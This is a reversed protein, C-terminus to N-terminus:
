SVAKEKQEKNHKLGIKSNLLLWYFFGGLIYCGIDIWDPTSNKRLFPAVFEWVLGACFCYLVIHCLEQLLLKRIYLFINSYAVFLSGCLFDNFHCVLLYRVIGETHQKLYYNNLCYLFAVVVIVWGNLPIAKLSNGVKNLMVWDSCFSDFGGSHCRCNGM